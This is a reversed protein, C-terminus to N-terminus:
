EKKKMLYYYTNSKEITVINSQVFEYGYASMYNLADMISNFDLVEGKEDKIRATDKNSSLLATRQGIDIAINLKSSMYKETGIIQLYKVNLDKIPIGNITQGFSSLCSLLIFAPILKKM